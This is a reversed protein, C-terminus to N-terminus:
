GAFVVPYRKWYPRATDTAVEAADDPDPRVGHDVMWQVAVPVLGFLHDAEDRGPVSPLGAALDQGICAHMGSGFSLGWPQQREPVTRTPDFVSADPGWTGPDHNVALLDIVVKAGQPVHIGGPLDVAETAWRM